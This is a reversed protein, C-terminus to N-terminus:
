TGRRLMVAEDAQDDDRRYPRRSVADLMYAADERVRRNYSRWSGLHGLLLHCRGCMTLLNGRDLELEPWLHVPRVHHVDLDDDAGCCECRPHDRLYEGRLRGWGPSRPVMLPPEVPRGLATVGPVGGGTMVGRRAWWTLALTALNLGVLLWLLVEDTM